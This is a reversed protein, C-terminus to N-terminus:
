IADTNYIIAIENTHNSTKMATAIFIGNKHPIIGHQNTLLQWREPSAWVNTHATNLCFSLHYIGM